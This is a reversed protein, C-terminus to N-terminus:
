ARLMKCRLYLFGYASVGFSVSTGALVDLFQARTQVGGVPGFGYFDIVDQGSSFPCSGDSLRESDTCTFTLGKMVTHILVWAGWKFPPIYNIIVLVPSMHLSLFGTM